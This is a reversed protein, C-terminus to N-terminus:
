ILLIIKAVGGGFLGVPLVPTSMIRTRSRSTAASPKQAKESFEGAAGVGVAVPV